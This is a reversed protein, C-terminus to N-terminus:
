SNWKKGLHLVAPYAQVVIMMVFILALLFFLFWMLRRIWKPDWESRLWWNALPQFAAPVKGAGLNSLLVSGSYSILILLATYIATFRNM